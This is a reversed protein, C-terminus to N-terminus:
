SQKKKRRGARERKARGGERQFAKRRNSLLLSVTKRQNEGAPGPPQCPSPPVTSASHLRGAASHMGVAPDPPPAAEGTGLWLAGPRCGPTVASNIIAPHARRAGWGGAAFMLDRQPWLSSVARSGVVPAPDVLGGPSSLRKNKSASDCTAYLQM